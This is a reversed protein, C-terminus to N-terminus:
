VSKDVFGTGCDCPGFKLWKKGYCQNCKVVERFNVIKVGNQIKYAYKHGMVAFKSEKVTQVTLLVDDPNDGYPDLLLEADAFDKSPNGGRGHESGPNKQLVVVGIGTGLARKIGELVPSIMYYEGPLNVWDIVNLRGPRIQEAYDDYVPLLEFREEDNGNVWKVWDMNQLRTILRASPEYDEGEGTMTTYENGMLCPNLHLNEAVINLSLATKGKNKFGSLVILDGQRITIGEFFEMPEGTIRDCPAHFDVPERTTRGFVKVPKVVRVKRYVGRKIKKIYRQELLRKIGMHFNSSKNSIEHKKRLDELAFEDVELDILKKLLETTLQEM